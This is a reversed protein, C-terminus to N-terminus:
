MTHGRLQRIARKQVLATESELIELAEKLGAIEAEYGAKRNAYTEAKEICESEIKSLYELVADLEAQVGSRDATLEGTFKDLYKAEKMKYRVDQEKATREVQNDKTVQEYESAALDEDSTIQALNKSFDAECVELLGIIGSSAGDAATHAKGDKAYYENLIKLALKIGTLAKELEAKSAVFATNEEHRLKDMDAQSKALKALAGQLAAVEGKLQTSEATMRDIRTSLKKIENTKEMKKTNTESLEKDCYAKHTADASAEAELKEIMDAILGKIKGFPDQLHMAASMRSALQALATSGDKRALDRVMRVAEAGSTSSAVQVFSVQSLSAATAEKIVKKAEAMAHLEEGRSRTEAEFTSAKTMCDHHLSAKSEKDASLERSTAELDGTATAKRESSAAMNSKAEALDANAFKLDDQLAQQLQQFINLNSTETHRAAALQAEAKETLDRLTEVIDGSHSAYVTAAPAGPAEDDDSDRAKQSNSQQVFATLKAADSSSIASAAVMAAFAQVLNGASAQLMSAGGQMERELIGTARHLMDVTEVLNSEEKAFVGHEAGRLHTAAKLDAERNGITATEESITAKLSESEATGTKIEFGLNRARDECGESDSVRFAVIASSVAVM